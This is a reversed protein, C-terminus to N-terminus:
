GTPVPVFSMSRRDKRTKIAYDAMERDATKGKLEAFVLVKGKCADLAEEFTPVQTGDVRLKRIEELTMDQPHNHHERPAYDLHEGKKYSYFLQTMKMIYLPTAFLDAFLSIACGFLVFVITFIRGIGPPLPLVDIILLPLVLFLVIIIGLAAIM